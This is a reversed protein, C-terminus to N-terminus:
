SEEVGEIIVRWAIYQDETIAFDGQEMAYDIVREVTHFIGDGSDEDVRLQLFDLMPEHPGKTDPLGCSPCYSLNGKSASIQGKAGCSSCNYPVTNM